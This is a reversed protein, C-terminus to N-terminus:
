ADMLKRHLAEMLKVHAGMSKVHRAHTGAHDYFDKRFTDFDSLFSAFDIGKVSGQFRICGQVFEDIAVEGSRDQTPCLCM